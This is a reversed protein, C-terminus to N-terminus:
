CRTLVDEGPGDRCIDKARGGDLTDDGAGGDLTDADDGGFLADAGNTGMLLDEGPGGKLVVSSSRIEGSYRLSRAADNGRGGKFVVRVNGATPAIDLNLSDGGRGGLVVITVNTAGPGVVVNITDTGRGAAVDIRRKVDSGSPVNVSIVDAGRGARISRDAESSGAHLALEDAGAGSEIACDGVVIQDSGKTGPSTESCPAYAPEGKIGVYAYDNEYDEDYSSSAVYASNWVEYETTRTVSLTIDASEGPALDGLDCRLERYGYFSPSSQMERPQDQGEYDSFECVDTEDSSAVQVFDVGWPLPDSLQVDRATSPGENAVTLNYDFQAGVEPDGPATMSVSVDAPNSKDAPILVEAYNNEYRPDYNSAYVSVSEYIERAKTRKVVLEVTTSVGKPLSALSCSFSSGGYYIPSSTSDASGSEPSGPEAAYPAEDKYSYDDFGCIDGERTAEYSVFELGDPVFNTLFIDSATAPGLNDVTFVIRAEEGVLPLQPNMEMQVSLDSTVSPDAAIHFSSYDNEYNPDYSSSMVSASNWIEWGSTRTVQLTVKTVASPAISGLDCSAVEQRYFEPQTEGDTPPAPETGGGGGSDFVTCTDSPDSSTVSVLDVGDPLYDDVWVGSATHPGQNKVTILYSFDGTVEGKPGTMEVAVDATQSKDPAIYIESYGNEYNTEQASTWVSGYTYIERAADRKVRVTLTTVGETGVEGLACTINSDSYRAGGGTAPEPYGYTEVSCTDTTDSSTASIYSLGSSLYTSFAVEPAAEPGNNTVSFVLDFTDGVLPAGPFSATIAVDTTGESTGPGPDPKPETQAGAPLAFGVLCLVTAGVITRKIM